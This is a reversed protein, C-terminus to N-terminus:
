SGSQIPIQDRIKPPPSGALMGSMSDEERKAYSLVQKKVAYGVATHIGM